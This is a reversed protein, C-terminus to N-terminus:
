WPRYWPKKWFLARLSESGESMFNYAMNEALLHCLRATYKGTYTTNFPFLEDIDQGRLIVSALQPTQHWPNVADKKWYGVPIKLLEQTEEPLANRFGDSLYPFVWIMHVEYGGKVGCRANPLVDLRQHVIPVKGEAVKAKAAAILEDLKEPAFIQCRANLYEPHNRGVVGREARGFVSVWWMEYCFNEDTFPRTIGLVSIITKVGRRVLAIVASDDCAGGDAQLSPRNYKSKLDAPHWVDVVEGGFARAQAVNAPSIFPAASSTGCAFALSCFYEPKVKLVRDEMIGECDEELIPGKAGTAFTEVVGGGVAGCSLGRIELPVGSYLPTFELPYWVGGPDDNNQHLQACNLIPFPTGQRQPFVRSGTTEVAKVARRYADTDKTPAMVARSNYLDYPQLFAYAVAENWSKLTPNSTFYNFQDKALNQIEMTLPDSKSAAADLFGKEPPHELKEITLKEPGVPGGGFFEDLSFEDPLFCYPAAVWSSGSTSAIYRVQSLLGLHHLAQLVGFSECCARIGGGSLALGVDGTRKILGRLEDVEPFVARPMRWFKTEVEVGRELYNFLDVRGSLVAAYAVLKEIREGYQPEPEDDKGDDKEGDDDKKGHDRGRRIREFLEGFLTPPLQLNGLSMLDM